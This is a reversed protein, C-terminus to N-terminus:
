ETAAPLDKEKGVLTLDKGDNWVCDLGLEHYMQCTEITVKDGAGKFTNNMEEGGVM